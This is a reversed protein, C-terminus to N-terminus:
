VVLWVIGQMFKVLSSRFKPIVRRRLMMWCGMMWLRMMGQVMEIIEIILQVTCFVCQYEPQRASGYDKYRGDGAGYHGGREDLEQHVAHLRPLGTTLM